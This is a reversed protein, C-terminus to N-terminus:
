LYILRAHILYTDDPVVLLALDWTWFTIARFKVFVMSPLMSRVMEMVVVSELLFTAFLRCTPPQWVTTASASVYSSDSTAWLSKVQVGPATLSLQSNYNSFLGFIVVAVLPAAM